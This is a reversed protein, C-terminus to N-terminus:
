TPRVPIRTLGMLLSGRIVTRSVYSSGCNHSKVALFGIHGVNQTSESNQMLEAMDARFRSNDARVTVHGLETIRATGVSGFNSEFEAYFESGSFGFKPGSCEYVSLFFM